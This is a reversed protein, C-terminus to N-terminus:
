RGGYYIGHNASKLSVPPIFLHPKKRYMWRGRKQVRCVIFASFGSFMAYVAVIFGAILLLAAWISCGVFMMVYVFIIYALALIFLWQRLRERGFRIEDNKKDMVIFQAITMKKFIKKNRWLALIYCAYYCGVTMLLCWGSIQVNLQYTENFVSYFVTMIVQQLLLGVAMGAVLAM